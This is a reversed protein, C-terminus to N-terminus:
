GAIFKYYVIYGVIYILLLAITLWHWKSFYDFVFNIASYIGPFLSFVVIMIYSKWSPAQGLIFKNSLFFILSSIGGFLLLAVLAIFIFFGGTVAGSTSMSQLLITM